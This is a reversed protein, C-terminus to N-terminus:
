ADAPFLAEAYAQARTYFAMADGKDGDGCKMYVGFLANAVSQRSAAIFQPAYWCVADFSGDENETVTKRWEAALLTGAGDISTDFEAPRTNFHRTTPTM